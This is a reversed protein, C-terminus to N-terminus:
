YKALGNIISRSLGSDYVQGQHNWRSQDISNYRSRPIKYKHLCFIFFLSVM